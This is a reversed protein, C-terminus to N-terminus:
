QFCLAVNDCFAFFQRRSANQEWNKKRGLTKNKNDKEEEDVENEEAATWILNNVGNTRLSLSLVARLAVSLFYFLLHGPTPPPLILFSLWIYKKVQAVFFFWFFFM